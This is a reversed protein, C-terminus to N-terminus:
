VLQWRGERGVVPYQHGVGHHCGAAGHHLHCDGFMDPNNHPQQLRQQRLNRSPGECRRCSQEVDVGYTSSSIMFRPAEGSYM